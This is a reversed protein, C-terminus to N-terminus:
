YMGTIQQITVVVSILSILSEELPTLNQLPDRGKYRFKLGTNELSYKMFPKHAEPERSKLLRGGEDECRRCM